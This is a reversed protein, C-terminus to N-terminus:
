GCLIINVVTINIIYVLVKDCFCTGTGKDRQDILNKFMLRWLM